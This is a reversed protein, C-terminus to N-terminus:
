KALKIEGSIIKAKIEKIKEITGAPLKNKTYEFNTVGVGNEKLGFRNEGAKFTGDKVAKITNYVAVDVNKMMSTLVVGPAVGDQDSDVGIAYVGKEKAAEIVGMGTGGAAHYVVDADQQMLSLAEEKGRVPDNFPNPGSTYVSLAKVKPNVYKAGQEFGNQFKHILPIDMGGVFGVTNTKTMMGAVAGVLFSGEDEKFLLSSVNPLDVYSDIIAFKINPFEKAVKECSDHMLFGTAIVLDYGAEAYQRLYQEDEAPSAPEVYNFEVGLKDKGMKMGRFASDNFSKDGLGGISFVIGAKLKKVTAKKTVKTDSKKKFFDFLGAQAVAGVTLMLVLVLVLNKRILKM